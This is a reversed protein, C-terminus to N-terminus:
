LTEMVEENGENWERFHSKPYNMLECRSHISLNDLNPLDSHAKKEFGRVRVPHETDEM